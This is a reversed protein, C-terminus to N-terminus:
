VLSWLGGAGPGAASTRRPGKRKETVELDACALAQFVAAQKAADAALRAAAAAAKAAAAAEKPSPGSKAAAAYAAALVRCRAAERAATHQQQNRIRQVVAAVDRAAKPDAVIAAPPVAELVGLAAEAKGAQALRAAAATFIAAPAKMTKLNGVIEGEHGAAVAAPVFLALLQERAAPEKAKTAATWAVEAALGALGNATLGRCRATTAEVSPPLAAAMAEADALAAKAAAPKGAKEWAAALDYTVALVPGAQERVKNVGTRARKLVDQCQPLQKGNLLARGETVDLATQVSLPGAM